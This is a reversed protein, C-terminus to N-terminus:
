HKALQWLLSFKSKVRKKKLEGPILATHNVQIYTAKFGRYDKSSSGDSVFLVTLSESMSYYIVSHSGCRRKGNCGDSSFGNQVQLYDCSCTQGCSQIYMDEIILVVYNGKSATIQWSCRQNDPYNRPYFPSTIVGSTENLTTMNPCVPQSSSYSIFKMYIKSWCARLNIPDHLKQRLKNEDVFLGCISQTNLKNITKSFKNCAKFSFIYM